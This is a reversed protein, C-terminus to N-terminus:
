EEDLIKMIHRIKKNWTDHKENFYFSFVSENTEDKNEVNLSFEHRETMTDVCAIFYLSENIYRGVSILIEKIDNNCVTENDLNSSMKRRIEEGLENIVCGKRCLSNYTKLSQKFINKNKNSSLLYFSKKNDDSSLLFREVHHSIKNGMSGKTYCDYMEDIDNLYRYIEDILDNKEDLLETEVFSANKKNEKKNSLDTAYRGLFFAIIASIIPICDKFSIFGNNSKLLIGIIQQQIQMISSSVDIM